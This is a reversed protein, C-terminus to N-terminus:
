GRRRLEVTAPRLGRDRRAGGHHRRRRRLGRFGLRFLPRVARRRSAIWAAKARLRSTEVVTAVAVGRELEGWLEAQRLIEAEDTLMPPESCISGSRSIAARPKRIPAFKMRKEPGADQRNRSRRRAPQSEPPRQSFIRRGGCAFRSRRRHGSRGAAHDKKEPRWGSRAKSAPRGVPRSCSSRNTGVGASGPPSLRVDLRGDSSRAAGKEAWRHHPDQGHLRSERRPLGHTRGALQTMASEQTGAAIKLSHTADCLRCDRWLTKPPAMRGISSDAAASFKRALKLSRASSTTRLLSSWAARLAARMDRVENGLRAPSSASLSLVRDILREIPIKQELEVTITEVRCFRTGAFFVDPDRGYRDGPEETWNSRAAEDAPLWRNRGDAISAARCILIRGNRAVVGNLVARIPEAGDLPARARDNRHRIRRYQRAPKGGQRRDPAACAPATRPRARRRSSRRSQIM